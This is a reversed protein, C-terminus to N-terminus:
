IGFIATLVLLIGLWLIVVKPLIFFNYLSFYLLAHHISSVSFSSPSYKLVPLYPHDSHDSLIQVFIKFHLFVCIQEINQACCLVVVVVFGSIFALRSNQVIQSGTTNCYLSHFLSLYSVHGLLFHVSFSVKCTVAPIEAKARCHSIQTSM